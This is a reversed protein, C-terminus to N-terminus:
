GLTLAVDGLASEPEKVVGRGAVEVGYFGLGAPVRARFPFACQLSANYRGRGLGVITLTRGADNSIVVQAGPHIDSYGGETRCPHGEQLQSMNTVRIGDVGKIALTGSVVDTAPKTRHPAAPTGTTAGTAASTGCGAALVGVVAVAAVARRM